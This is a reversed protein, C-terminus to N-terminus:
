LRAHLGGPMTADGGLSCHRFLVMYQDVCKPLLSRSAHQVINGGVATINTVQGLKGAHMCGVDFYSFLIAIFVPSGTYVNVLSPSLRVLLWPRLWSNPPTYNHHTRLYFFCSSLRVSARYRIQGPDFLFFVVLLWM